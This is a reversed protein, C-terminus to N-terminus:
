FLWRARAVAGNPGLDMRVEPEPTRLSADKGAAGAPSPPAQGEEPTTWLLIFTSLGVAIAGVGMLVNAKKSASRAEENLAVGERYCLEDRCYDDSEARKQFAVVGYYGGVGLATLGAAGAIWATTRLSSPYADATAAMAPPDVRAPSTPPPPTATPPPAPQPERDLIPIDITVSAAREITQEQRWPQRDNASASFAYSGPDVPIPLGWSTEPIVVEGRRVELGPVRAADDVAIVFHSLLPELANAHEQAFRARQEDQSRTALAISQKFEAWASATKGQREHCVALNLLTGAAPTVRQSAEFTRCAEDIKGEQMLGRGERFLREALTMPEAAGEGQAVSCTLVTVALIGGDVLWRFRTHATGM